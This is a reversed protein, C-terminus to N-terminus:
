LALFISAIITFLGVGIGLMTPWDTGTVPIPLPSSQTNSNSSSSTAAATSTASACGCSSENPCNPNRCYGQYCMYNSKCNSNSGCTGGCSNGSDTASPSATSTAHATATPTAHSTSMPSATATAHATATATAHATAVSTPTPSTSTSGSVVLIGQTKSILISVGEQLGSADTTPDFEINSNGSAAGAKVKANVKLVELGTGTVAKSTDLNFAVYTVTGATNDYTNALSQSLDTIDVGQQISTVEIIAPDYVLRVEVGTVLNEATDMNVTFTFNSGPAKTQSGPTIYMSTAPSAKQAVNTRKGVLYVGLFVSVVLFIVALLIILLNKGSIKKSKSNTVIEFPAGSQQQKIEEPM